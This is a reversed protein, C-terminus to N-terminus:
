NKQGIFIFIYHIILAVVYKLDDLQKAMEMVTAIHQATCANLVGESEAAALQARHAVVRLHANQAKEAHLARRIEDFAARSARESLVHERALQTHLLLFSYLFLLSIFNYIM